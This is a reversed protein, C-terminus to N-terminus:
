GKASEAQNDGSVLEGEVVSTEGADKNELQKKGQIMNNLSENEFGIFVLSKPSAVNVNVSNGTETREGMVSLMLKTAALVEKDNSDPNEVIRKLRLAITMRTLGVSELAAAFQASSSEYKKLIRAAAADPKKYGAKEASEIARGKTPSNADYFNFLFADEPSSHNLGSPTATIKERRGKGLAAIREEVIGTAQPSEKEQREREGM